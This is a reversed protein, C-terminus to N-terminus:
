QKEKETLKGRWNRREQQHKVGLAVDSFLRISFRHPQAATYASLKHTEKLM